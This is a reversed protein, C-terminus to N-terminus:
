LAKSWVRGERRVLGALKAKGACQKGAQQHARDTRRPIKSSRPGCRRCAAYARQLVLSRMHMRRAVDSRKAPMVRPMDIGPQVLPAEVYALGEGDGRIMQKRLALLANDITKDQM